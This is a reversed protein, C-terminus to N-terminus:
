LAAEHEQHERHREGAVSQNQSVLLNTISLLQGLLGSEEAIARTSNPSVSRSAEMERALGQHLALTM